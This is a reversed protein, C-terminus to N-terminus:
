SMVVEALEHEGATGSGATATPAQQTPQQAQPRLEAEAAPASEGAPSKSEAGAPSAADEDEIHARLPEQKILFTCIWCVFAIPVSSLFVMQLAAVYSAIFKARAIPDLANIQEVSFNLAGPPLADGFKSKLNDELVHTLISGYM